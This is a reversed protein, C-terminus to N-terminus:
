KVLVVDWLFHADEGIKGAEERVKACIERFQLQREM